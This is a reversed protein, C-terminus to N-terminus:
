PQKNQDANKLANAIAEKGEPSDPPYPTVIARVKDGPKAGKPAPLEIVQVSPDQNQQTVPTFEKSEDKNDSGSCAPILLVTAVACGALALRKLLAM